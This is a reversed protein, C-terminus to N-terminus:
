TGDNTLGFQRRWLAINEALQDVPVATLYRTTNTKPWKAVIEKQLFLTSM